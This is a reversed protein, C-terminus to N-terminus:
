QYTVGCDYPVLTQQWEGLLKHPFSRTIEYKTEIFGGWKSFTVIRVTATDKGLEVVPELSLKRADQVVQDPLSVDEKYKEYFKKVESAALDIDSRNCLVVTDNYLERMGENFQGALIGLTVFQFFGDSTNDTKVSDLYYYFADQLDLFTTYFYDQPVFSPQGVLALLDTYSAYPKQDVPRAYIVPYTPGAPGDNPGPFEYFVLDLTYGPKTYLHNLVSFYGNVNHYKRTFSKAVVRMGDVSGRCATIASTAGETPTPRVNLPTPAATGTLTPTSTPVSAVQTKLAELTVQFQEWERTSTLDPTATPTSGAPRSPITATGPPLLSTSTALVAPTETVGPAPKASCAGLLLTMLCIVSFFRMDSMTRNSSM